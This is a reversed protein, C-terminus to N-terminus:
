FWNDQISFIFFNNSVVLTKKRYRFSELKVMDMQVQNKFFWTWRVSNKAQMFWNRIQNKCAVCASFLLYETRSLSFIWVMSSSKELKIKWFDLVPPYPSLCFSISTLPFFENTAELSKKITLMWYLQYWFHICM